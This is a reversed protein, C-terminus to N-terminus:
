RDEDHPREAPQAAQTQCLDTLESRRQAILREKEFLDDFVVKLMKMLHKVKAEDADCILGEHIHDCVDALAKTIATVHSCRMSRGRVLGDLARELDVKMEYQKSNM